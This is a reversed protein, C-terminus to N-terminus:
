SLVPWSSNLTRSALPMALRGLSPAVTIMSPMVYAKLVVPEGGESVAVTLCTSTRVLVVTVWSTAARTATTMALSESKSVVFLRITTLVALVVVMRNLSSPVRAIATSGVPRRSPVPVRIVACFLAKVAFFGAM